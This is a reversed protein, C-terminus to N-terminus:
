EIDEVELMNVIVHDRNLGSDVSRQSSCLKNVKIFSYQESISGIDRWFFRTFNIRITRKVFVVRTRKVFTNLQNVNDRKHIKSNNRDQCKKKPFLEPVNREFRQDM